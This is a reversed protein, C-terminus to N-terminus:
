TATSNSLPPSTVSFRAASIAPSLRQCNWSMRAWRPTLISTSASEASSSDAAAAAMRLRAPHDQHVVVDKGAKCPDPLQLQQEVEEGIVRQANRGMDVIFHHRRDPQAAGEQFGR